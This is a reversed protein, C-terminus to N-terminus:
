PLQRLGIINGDADKVSAVLMGGGVDKVAQEVQGGADLLVQLSQQIDNVQYYATMGARHGNPDLGIEQDGIRFGVYYPSDAYPEVGLLKQFREKAQALDTVPYIVTRIGQNNIESMILTEQKFTIVPYISTM